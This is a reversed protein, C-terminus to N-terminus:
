LQLNIAFKPNIYVGPKRYSVPNRGPKNFNEVECMIQTTLTRKNEKQFSLAKIEFATRSISAFATIYLCVYMCISTNQTLPIYKTSREIWKISSCKCVAPKPCLCGLSTEDLLLDLILMNWTGVIGESLLYYILAVHGHAILPLKIPATRSNIYIYIYIYKLWFPRATILCMKGEYRGPRASTFFQCKFQMSRLRNASLSLQTLCGM